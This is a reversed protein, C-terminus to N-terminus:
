KEKLVLNLNIRFYDKIPAVGKHLLNSKFIKAENEKDKIKFKNIQLYGDSDNLSFLISYYKEVDVNINDTDIHFIMGTDSRKYFNWTIRIIDANLNQRKCVEDAVKQALKNLEKETKGIPEKLTERAMGQFPKQVEFLENELYQLSDCGCTWHLDKLHYKIKYLDEKSLVNKEIKYM